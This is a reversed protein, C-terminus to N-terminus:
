QLKTGCNSCYKTVPPSQAGCTPCFKSSKSPSQVQRLQPSLRLTRRLNTENAVLEASYKPITAIGGLASIAAGAILALIIVSSSALSLFASPNTLIRPDALAALNTVAGAIAVILFAIGFGIVYWVIVM